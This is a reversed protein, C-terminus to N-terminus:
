KFILHSRAEGTARPANQYDIAIRLRYWEIFRHIISCAASGDRGKSADMTLRYESIYNDLAAQFEFQRRSTCNHNHQSDTASAPESTSFDANLAYM